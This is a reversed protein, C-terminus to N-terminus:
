RTLIAVRCDLNLIQTGNEDESFPENWHSHGRLITIPELDAIATQIVSSGRQGAKTGRPGDHLLLLDPKTKTLMNALSSFEEHTKRQPKIPNGIIGGIGAITMGDLETSKGDLYYTNSAFRKQPIFSDGYLDHNGAVGAVWRFHSAFAQWVPIVDGTGGRNNLDPLTYFDGMLLIGTRAPSINLSPLVNHCLKEPLVEGLLKLSGQSSEQITERGQLDATAILADLGTPLNELKGLHVPLQDVYYIGHGKGANLFPIQLLPTEQFQTIRM